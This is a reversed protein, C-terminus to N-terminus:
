RDKVVFHKLGRLREKALDIESDTKCVVFRLYEEATKVENCYFALFSARLNTEHVSLSGDLGGFARHFRFSFIGWYTGNGPIATVGFERILFWCIKFDRTKGALSAPYVCDLPLQIKRTQVFVFYAGQPKTYQRVFLDHATM